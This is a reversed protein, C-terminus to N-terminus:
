RTESIDTGLKRDAEIIIEFQTPGMFIFIPGMM